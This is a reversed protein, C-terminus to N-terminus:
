GETGTWPLPLDIDVPLLWRGVEPVATLSAPLGRVEAWAVASRRREDLELPADGAPRALEARLNTVEGTLVAVHEELASRWAAEAPMPMPMLVPIPLAVPVPADPLAVVLSATVPPPQVDLVEEWAAVAEVRDSGDLAPFMWGVTLLSNELAADLCEAARQERRRIQDCASAVARGVAAERIPDLMPRWGGPPLPTGAAPALGVAATPVMAMTPLAALPPLAPMIAVSPKAPVLGDVAARAVVVPVVSPMGEATRATKEWGTRGRVMRYLARWCCAWSLYNMAVFSHGLALSKVWGMQPERRHALFGTVLAPYFAVVYLLVLGLTTSGGGGFGNAMLHQAFRFMALHYLISWPLDLLWPVLLYLITEIASAHGIKGSRWVEPIRKGATMHGQYWRTRQNLLRQVTEIGQQDVSAYPTSTSRWGRTILSITLDLDETLSPNWPREGLQQLASLRTFQGNGGLSVTGTRIRGLQTMASMTWFQFNQFQTVWNDRNRIRVALQVGGIQPDDFLPLTVTLAGNSLRGDADMVAVIVKSPDQGREAVLRSLAAFGENLAPGKGQRANPLERRVVVVGGAVDQAVQSTRDDSADDIVIVTSRDSGTPLFSVTSGIVLEENLCPILYYVVYRDLASKDAGPVDLAAAPDEYLAAAQMSLPAGRARSARIGLYVMGFFYCASLGLILGTLAQIVAGM